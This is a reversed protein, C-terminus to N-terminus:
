WLEVAGHEEKEGEGRVWYAKGEEARIYVKEVAGVATIIKARVDEPTIEQGSPSQIILRMASMATNESVTVKVTSSNKSATKTKNKKKSMTNFESENRENREKGYFRKWSAIYHWDMGYADAVVRTGVEAAATVILAKDDEDYSVKRPPLGNQGPTISEEM